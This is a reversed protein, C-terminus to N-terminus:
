LNVAPTDCWVGGGTPPIQQCHRVIKLMRFIKIIILCLIVIKSAKAQM